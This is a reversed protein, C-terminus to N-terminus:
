STRLYRAINTAIRDANAMITFTHPKAPLSTLAAGDVVHVGPLGRVEGEVDSEHPAPRERMPVTGAYHTDGGADGITFSRPLMWAGYRRLARSLRNRIDQLRFSLEEKFGGHICVYDDSSLRLWHESLEGPLFCNGVALTPLAIRAVGVATRRSTPLRNIFDTVPLGHTSFLSGFAYGSAGPMWTVTFAIQGLAFFREPVAKGLSAPFWLAFAASPTSLLRISAETGL